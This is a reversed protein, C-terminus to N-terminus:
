SLIPPPATAVKRTRKPSNVKGMLFDKGHAFTLAVQKKQLFQDKELYQVFHPSQKFRPLTDREMLYMLEKQVRMLVVGMQEMLSKIEPSSEMMRRTTTADDEEEDPAQQAYWM